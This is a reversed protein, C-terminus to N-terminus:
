WRRCTGTGTVVCVCLDVNNELSLLFFVHPTPAGVYSYSVDSIMSQYTKEEKLEAMKASVQTNFGKIAAKFAESMPGLVMEMLPTFVQFSSFMFSPRPLDM